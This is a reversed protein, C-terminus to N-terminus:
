QLHPVELVRPWRPKYLDRLTWSELPRYLYFNEFPVVESPSPKLKGLTGQKFNKISIRLSM